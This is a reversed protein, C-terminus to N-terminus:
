IPNQAQHDHAGSRAYSGHATRKLLEGVEPSYAVRGSTVFQEHNSEIMKPEYVYNVMMGM